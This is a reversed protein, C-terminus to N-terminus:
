ELLSSWCINGNKVNQTFKFHRVDGPKTPIGQLNYPIWYCPHENTWCNDSHLWICDEQLDASYIASCGNQDLWEKTYMDRFTPNNIHVKCIHMQHKWEDKSTHKCKECTFSVCTEDHDSNMHVNMNAEDDSEYDCKGCKSTSPIDPDTSENISSHKEKFHANVDCFTNGVYDCTDCKYGKKTSSTETNERLVQPDDEVSCKERELNTSSTAQLSELEKKLNYIKLDREEVVNELMIANEELEKVTMDYQSNAFQQNEILKSLREKERNADSLRTKTVKNDQSTDNLNKTIDRAETFAEELKDELLVIEKGLKECKVELEENEFELMGCKKGLEELKTKLFLHETEVDKVSNKRVDTNEVTREEIINKDCRKIFKKRITVYGSYPTEKIMFDLKSMRLCIMVQGFVNEANEGAM